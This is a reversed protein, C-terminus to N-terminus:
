LSLKFPLMGDSGSPTRYSSAKVITKSFGKWRKLGPKCRWTRVQIAGIPNAQQAVLGSSLLIALDNQCTIQGYGALLRLLGLLWQRSNNKAATDAPGSSKAAAIRATFDTGATQLSGMTVPPAPYAANDTM